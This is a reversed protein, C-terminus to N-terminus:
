SVMNSVGKLRDVYYKRFELTSGSELINSISLNNIDKSDLSKEALVDNFCALIVHATTQSSGTSPRELHM